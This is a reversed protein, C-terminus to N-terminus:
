KLKAVTKLEEPKVQDRRQPVNNNQTGRTDKGKKQPM